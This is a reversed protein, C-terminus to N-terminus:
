NRFWENFITAYCRFYMADVSETRKQNGLIKEAITGKIWGNKPSTVQPITYETTQTWADQKNEGMFEEWHEWLLRRPVFFYYTDLWANDMVPYIPTTMRILASTKMKCTDGPLVEDTYFPILEGTNFTTSHICPRKFSSRGISKMPALGFHNDTNRSM